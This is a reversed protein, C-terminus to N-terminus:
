LGCISLADGANGTAANAPYAQLDKCITNSSAIDYAPFGNDNISSIRVQIRRQVGHDNGTSDIMVQANRFLLSAGNSFAQITVRSDTYMSLLSMIFGNANSGGVPVNVNCTDPQTSANNCNGSVSLGSSPGITTGSYPAAYNVGGNGKQPYLFATYTQTTNSPLPGGNQLPTLALRLIGTIPKGINQWATATPLCAGYINPGLNCQPFYSIPPAFAYPSSEVQSAPEWSFEFNTPNVPTGNSNVTSIIAVTPQNTGVSSYQLTAPTPNILLCSYYVQSGNVQNNELYQYGQESTDIGNTGCKDKAVLYGHTIAQVADNIGSDAAYYADNSLQRNLANQANNNALTVFGLTLLSLVVVIIISVIIPAFGDEGLRRNSIQM